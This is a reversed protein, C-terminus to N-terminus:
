IPEINKLFGYNFKLALLFNNETHAKYLQMKLSEDRILREVPVRTDSIFVVLMDLSFFYQCNIGHFSYAALNQKM